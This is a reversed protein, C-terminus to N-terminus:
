TPLPVQTQSTDRTTRGRCQFYSKVRLPSIRTLVCGNVQPGAPTLYVTTPPYSFTAGQGTTAQQRVHRPAHESQHEASTSNGM